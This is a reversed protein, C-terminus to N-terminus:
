QKRAWVGLPALVFNGDTKRMAYLRSVSETGVNLVLRAEEDDESLNIAYSFGLGVQSPKVKEKKDDKAPETVAYGNIRLAETFANGFSDVAERQLHLSTKAPPYTNLMVGMADEVLAAVIAPPMELPKDPARCGCALLLLVAALINRM